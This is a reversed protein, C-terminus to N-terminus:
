GRAPRREGIRARFWAALLAREYRFADSSPPRPTSLLDIDTVWEEAALVRRGGESLAYRLRFRPPTSAEVIRVDGSGGRGPRDYGALDIDLVDIALRQGPRLTRAGLEVLIGRTAALTGRLGPGSRPDADAYGQPAVFRVSVPADGRADGPADAQAQAHAPGSALITLVAAAARHRLRRM